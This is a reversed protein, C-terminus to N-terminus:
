VTCAYYLVSNWIIQTLALYLMVNLQRCRAIKFFCVHHQATIYNMVIIYLQMNTHKYQIGM